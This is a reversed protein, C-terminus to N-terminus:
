FDSPRTNQRKPKVAKMQSTSAKKEELLHAADRLSDHRELATLHASAKADIDAFQIGMRTHESDEAQVWRVIGNLALPQSFAPVLLQLAVVDGKSFRGEAICQLGGRSLDLLPGARTKGRRLLVATVGMVRVRVFCKAVEFRASKRQSSYDSRESEDQRQRDRQHREKEAQRRSEIRHNCDPCLDMESSTMPTFSQGCSTCLRARPGTAKPLAVDMGCHACFTQSDGIESNCNLCRM